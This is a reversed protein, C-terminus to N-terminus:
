QFGGSAGFIKLWDAVPVSTDLRDKGLSGLLGNGSQLALDEKLDFNGSPSVDPPPNMAKKNGRETYNDKWTKFQNSLLNGLAFGAMTQPNTKSAANLMYLQKEWTSPQRQNNQAAQQQWQPFNLNNTAM